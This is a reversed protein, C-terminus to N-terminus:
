GHVQMEGPNGTQSLCSGFLEADNGCSDDKWFKIGKVM